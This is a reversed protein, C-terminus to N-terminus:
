EGAPVPRGARRARDEEHLRLVIIEDGFQGRVRGFVASSCAQVRPEGDLLPVHVACAHLRRRLAGPITGGTHRAGARSLLGVGHRNRFFLLIVRRRERQKLTERAM